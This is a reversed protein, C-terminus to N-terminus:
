ILRKGTGKLGLGTKYAVFEIGFVNVVVLCADYLRKVGFLDKIWLLFFPSTQGSAM